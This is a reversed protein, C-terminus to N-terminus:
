KDAVHREKGIRKRVQGGIPDRVYLRRGSLRNWCLYFWRVSEPGPRPSDAAQAKVHYASM